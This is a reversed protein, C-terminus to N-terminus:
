VMILISQRKESKVSGVGERVVVGVVKGVVEGVVESKEGRRNAGVKLRKGERELLSGFGRDGVRGWTEGLEMGMEM